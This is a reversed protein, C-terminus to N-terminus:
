EQSHPGRHRPMLQRTAGKEGGTQHQSRGSFAQGGVRGKAAQRALAAQDIARRDFRVTHIMVGVERGQQTALASRQGGLVRHLPVGQTGGGVAEIEGLGAKLAIRGIREAERTEAQRLQEQLRTIEERIKSSPKKM